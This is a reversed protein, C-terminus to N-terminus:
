VHARGIKVPSYSIEGAGTGLKLDFPLGDAYATVSIIVSVLLAAAALFTKLIKKVKFFRGLSKRM